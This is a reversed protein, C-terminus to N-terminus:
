NDDDDRLDYDINNSLYDDDRPSVQAMSSGSESGDDDGCFIRLKRIDKEPECRIAEYTDGTFADHEAGRQM